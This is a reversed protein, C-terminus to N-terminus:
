DHPTFEAELEEYIIEVIEGESHYDKMMLGPSYESTSLVSYLNTWQGGHWDSAFWYMAAERDFDMYGSKQNFGQSDLHALMEERTPDFNPM